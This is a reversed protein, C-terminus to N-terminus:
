ASVEPVVEVPVEEPAVVEAPAEEQTTVEAEASVVEPTETSVDEGLHQRFRVNVAEVEVPLSEEGNLYGNLVLVENDTLNM